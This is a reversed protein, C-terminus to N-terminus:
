THNINPLSITFISGKPSNEEVWIMGNHMAIFDKCLLLGLGTGQENETGLIQSRKDALFIAEKKEERIGIGQDLVSIYTDSAQVTVKIEVLQGRFSFKIANSVLNRLITNLMNKDAYVELNKKIRINIRIDKKIAISEITGIAESLVDYLNVVEPKFETLGSQTKSWVLLNELLKFAHTAASEITRLGRNLTEDDIQSFNNLMLDTFGIIASFPNKLDHAIISLFKDKTENAAKLEMAQKELLLEAKITESNDIFMATVTNIGTRFAHIQLHCNIRDDTYHLNFEKSEIEGRAIKRYLNPIDNYIMSPFAEEITYGLMKQNPVGTIQDAAQNADTFVLQDDKHLKFCHIGILTSEFVKRYKEESEALNKMMAKQRSIDKVVVLIQQKGSITTLQQTAEIWFATGDKKYALLETTRFDGNTEQYIFSVPNKKALTGVRQNLENFSRGLVEAKTPYGYMKLMSENVDIIKGDYLDLILIADSIFNFITRYNLESIKLLEDSKKRETIEIINLIYGSINQESDFSPNIYCDLYCIGNRTTEYLNNRKVLDFDFRLEYSVAKKNLLSEKATQPLNPDNFLNFGVIQEPQCIGFLDICAQNVTILRGDKDYLEIAIPSNGFIEPIVPIGNLIANKNSLPDTDKM